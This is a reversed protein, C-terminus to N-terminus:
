DAFGFFIVTIEFYRILYIVFFLRCLSKKTNLRDM